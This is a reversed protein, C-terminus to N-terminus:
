AQSPFYNHLTRFAAEVVAADLSAGPPAEIATGYPEYTGEIAVAADYVAASVYAMYILGENGFAGSAVVTDESIQNWQQVSNGPPLAAEVDRSTDVVLVALAVGCMQPGF